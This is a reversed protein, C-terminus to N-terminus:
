HFKVWNSISLRVHITCLHVRSYLVWLAVLVHCHLYGCCFDIWYWRCSNGIRLSRSLFNIKIKLSSYHFGTCSWWKSWQRQWCGQYTSCYFSCWTVSAISRSILKPSVHKRFRYSIRILILDFNHKRFKVCNVTDRWLHGWITRFYHIPWNKQWMKLNSM